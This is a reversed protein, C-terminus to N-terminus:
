RFEDFFHQALRDLSRLARVTAPGAGPESLIKDAPARLLIRLGGFRRVLRLPLDQGRLFPRLLSAIEVLRACDKVAM